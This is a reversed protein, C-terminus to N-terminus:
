GEMVVVGKLMKSGMVAGLGCRGAARTHRGDHCVSAMPVQREGAPGIMATGIGRGLEKRWADDGDYSDRGWRDGAGRLSLSRGEAAM